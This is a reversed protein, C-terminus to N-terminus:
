QARRHYEAVVTGVRTGNKTVTYHYEYMGHGHRVTSYQGYEQVRARKEQLRYAM